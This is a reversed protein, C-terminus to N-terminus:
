SSLYSSPRFRWLPRPGSQRGDLAWVYIQAGTEASVPCREHPDGPCSDFFLITLICPKFARYCFDKGNVNVATYLVVRGLSHLPSSNRLNHRSFRRVLEALSEQQPPTRKQRPPSSRASWRAPLARKCSDLVKWQAARQQNAPASSARLSVPASRSRMPFGRM